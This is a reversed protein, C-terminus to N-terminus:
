AKLIMDIYSYPIFKGENILGIIKDTTASMKDVTEGEQLAVKSIDYECNFLWVDVFSDSRMYSHICKGREADLLLGTEEYVERLAASLSDDGALASGGTTEWMNPFGKNPARKTILFEGRSNKTWVHVVLHYDGHKMFDGRRHYRGTLNRDKDYVDWIEGIGTQTNLWGNVYRFLYPQIQPYTLDAPINDFFKVEKIESAFPINEFKKVEAFFLMGYKDVGYVAIMKLDFVTAGTEEWLERKATEEITEGLERHGGPIEWTERKNHRCFVWGKEGRVVIVAYELKEDAIETPDFFNVEM